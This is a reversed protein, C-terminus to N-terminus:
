SQAMMEYEPHARNYTLLFQWAAHNWRADALAHHEGKDQEPLRPNGISACWQKLDRTYM